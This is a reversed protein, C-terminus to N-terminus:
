DDRMKKRLKKAARKPRLYIISAITVGGILLVFEAALTAAVGFWFDMM